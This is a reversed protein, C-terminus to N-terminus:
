FMDSYEGKLLEAAKKIRSLFTTRAVGLVKAIETDTLGALRLEGIRRAEPMIQGLRNFLQELAARDTIVEEINISEDQLKDMMSFEEGSENECTYDLSLTDGAARYQCALCDGDCLWLKSKPCMCQCHEQARKRTAWIDRYYGYYQEKTVDVWKKLRPLYVKYDRTQNQNDHSSIRLRQAFECKRKHEAWLPRKYARYVEETVLVQQGDIEIFRQQNEM